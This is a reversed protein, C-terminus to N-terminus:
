SVAVSETDTTGVTRVGSCPSRSGHSFNRLTDDILNAVKEKDVLCIFGYDVLEMALTAASDNPEVNCSLQRNMEDDLRLLITM